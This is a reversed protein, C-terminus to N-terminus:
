TEVGLVEGTERDIIVDTEPGNDADIEIVYVWKGFKKEIAVDTVEGPVEALAIEIAEEETLNQKPPEPSPPASPSPQANYEVSVLEVREGDELVVELAVGGVSPCYFKHEEAGPELPTYDLTKLCGSLSGFPVTVSETLSIVTAMDEAVGVYYEQRYSDDIAPVAKMIIGAKAGDVGSEWSGHTSTVAGGAMEKSDEGFYWVNGDKDQAYWDKTDEILDGELWVRDWVVITEIGQVMRTQNTVYTEVRETGDQTEGEYVMKKGPTLTFYKNTIQASFHDPNLKPDYTENLSENIAPQTANAPPTQNAPPATVNPPVPPVVPPKTINTKNEGAKPAQICGALVSFALVSILVIGFIKSMHGFRRFM